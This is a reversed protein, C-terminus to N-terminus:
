LNWNEVEWEEVGKITYDRYIVDDVELKEVFRLQGKKCYGLYSKENRELYIDIENKNLRFKVNTIIFEKNEGFTLCNIMQKKMKM